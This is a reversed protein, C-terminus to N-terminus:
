EVAPPPEPPKAKRSRRRLPAVDFQVLRENRSGLIAKAMGRIQRAQERGEELVQDLEQTIQQRIATHSDQRAKLDLARSLLDSLAVRRSEAPALAVTHDLFAQLVRQWDRILDAFSKIEPM